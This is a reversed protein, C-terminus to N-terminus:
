YKFLKLKKWKTILIMNNTQLIDSYTIEKLRIRVYLTKNYTDFNIIQPFNSDLFEFNSNYKRDPLDYYIEMLNNGDIRDIRLEYMVIFKFLKKVWFYYSQNQIINDYKDEFIKKYPPLLYNIVISTIDKGLIQIVISSM